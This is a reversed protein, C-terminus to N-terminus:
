ALAAFPAGHELVATGGGVVQMTHELVRVPDGTDDAV